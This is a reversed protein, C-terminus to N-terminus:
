ITTTLKIPPHCGLVPSFWWGTVLWQCIKDCLTTDLVDRRLPIRIRLTLLSLCRNSLRCEYGKKSIIHRNDCYYLTQQRSHAPTRPPPPASDWRGGERQWNGIWRVGNRWGNNGEGYNWNEFYNKVTTFNCWPFKWSKQFCPSPKTETFTTTPRVQGKVLM